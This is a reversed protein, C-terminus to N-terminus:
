QGPGSRDLGPRRAIEDAGVARAIAPARQVIDAVEGGVRDCTAVLRLDIEAEKVECHSCDPGGRRDLLKKQSRSRGYM